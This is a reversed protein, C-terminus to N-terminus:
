ESLFEEKLNNFIEQVKHRGLHEEAYKFEKTVEFADLGRTKIFFKKVIDEHCYEDYLDQFIVPMMEYMEALLGKALFRIEKQAHKDCRMKFFHRWARLNMTCVIETKTANPLVGRADEAKMGTELLHMYHSEADLLSKSFMMRQESTWDDWGIPEIFTVENGFKDKSYNVYRQSEQSYAALRHRVLQHTFGRSGIFRVTVNGHELVSEHKKMRLMAIIKNYSDETIKDESKYCNRGALEIVKLQEIVVDQSTASLVEFSSNILKM